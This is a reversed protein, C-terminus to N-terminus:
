PTSRRSTKSNEIKSTQVEACGVEGSLFVESLSGPYGKKVKEPDLPRLPKEEGKLCIRRSWFGLHQTSERERTLYWMPQPKIRDSSRRLNTVCGLLGKASLFLRLNSILGGSV